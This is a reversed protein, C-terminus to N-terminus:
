AGAFPPRPRGRPPFAARQSADKENYRPRGRIPYGCAFHPLNEVQWSVACIAMAASTPFLCTLFRGWM